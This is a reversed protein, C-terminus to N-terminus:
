PQAATKGARHKRQGTCSNTAEEERVFYVHITEERDEEAEYENDPQPPEEQPIDAEHTASEQGSLRKLFQEIEGTRDTQQQM